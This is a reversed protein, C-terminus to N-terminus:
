DDIDKTSKEMLTPIQKFKTKNVNQLLGVSAYIRKPWLKTKQFFYM